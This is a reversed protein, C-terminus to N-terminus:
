LAPTPVVAAPIAAIPIKPKTLWVSGLWAAWLSAFFSSLFVILSVISGFMSEVAFGILITAVNLTLMIGIYYIILRMAHGGLVTNRVM